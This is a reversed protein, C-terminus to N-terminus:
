SIYRDSYDIEVSLTGMATETLYCNQYGPTILDFYVTATHNGTSRVRLVIDGTGLDGGGAAPTISGTGIPYWTNTAIPTLPDVVAVGFSDTTLDLEIEPLLAVDTTRVFAGVEYVEGGATSFAAIAAASLHVSTQWAGVPAATIAVRYAWTGDYAAANSRSWVATVGVDTSLATWNTMDTSEFSNNAVLSSAPVIPMFARSVLDISNGLDDEEVHFFRGAWPAEYQFVGSSNYVGFLPRGADPDTTIWLALGTELTLWHGNKGGIIFRDYPTVSATGGGLRGKVNLDYVSVESGIQFYGDTLGGIGAISLILVLRSGTRFEVEDTALVPRALTYPDGVAPQATLTPVTLISGTSSSVTSAKPNATSQPGFTVTGNQWVNTEWSKSSDTLTTASSATVEGTDTVTSNMSVGDVPLVGMFLRIPNNDNSLDRYQVAQAGATLSVYRTSNAIVDRWSEGGPELVSFVFQGVGNENKLRYDFLIGQLGEPVYTAIGDAQGEDPYTAAQHIRRRSRGIGRWNHANTGDSGLDFIRSQAFDDDNDLYLTPAWGGPTPINHIWLQSPKAHIANARWLGPHTVSFITPDVNFAQQGYRQVVYSDSTALTGFSGAITLTTATNAIVVGKTGTSPSLFSVTGGVWEGPNWNQASDTLVTSTKSTVIGGDAMVGSRWVAYVSTGTPQTSWARVTTFSQLASDALRRMQGAGTGSLIQIYGDRWRHTEMNPSISGDTLSNTTSSSCTGSRGELDPAAYTNRTGGFTDLDLYATASPNGYLVDYTATDGSKITALFWLFTRKTNWNVKSHAYDYGQRRVRTDGGDSRAKSATVWASTDGLDICAPRDVWDKTTNNTVSYTRKYRWGLSSSFVTRQATWAIKFTGYTVAQGNSALPIAADTNIAFPGVVTPALATWVGGASTVMVTIAGPANPDISNIAVPIQAAVVANPDGVYARLTLLDSAQPYNLARLIAVKQAYGTIGSFVLTLSLATETSATFVPPADYRQEFDPDLTAPDSDAEVTGTVGTLSSLSLSGISIISSLTPM